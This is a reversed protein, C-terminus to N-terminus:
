AIRDGKRILFPQNANNIVLVKIEGRYDSDIVGAGIDICRVALGSRPAIRGYCCRPIALQLGTSVLCRCSPQIEYDDISALDYGASQPTQQLPLTADPHLKVIKLIIEPEM